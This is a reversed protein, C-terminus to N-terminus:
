EEKEQLEVEGEGRGRKGTGRKRNAQVRVADFPTIISLVGRLPQQLFPRSVSVCFFARIALGRSVETTLAAAESAAMCWHDAGDVVHLAGRVRFHPCAVVVPQLLAGGMRGGPVPRRSRASVSTTAEPGLQGLDNHGFPAIHGGSQVREM